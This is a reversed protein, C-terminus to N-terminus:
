WAVISRDPANRQSRRRLWNCDIVSPASWQNPGCLPEDSLRLVPTRRDRRIKVLAHFCRPRNRRKVTRVVRYTSNCYGNGTMHRAYAQPAPSATNRQCWFRACRQRAQAAKTGPLKQAVEARSNKCQSISIVCSPHYDSCKPSWDLM